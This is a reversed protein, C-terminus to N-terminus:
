RHGGALAPRTYPPRPAPLAPNALAVTLTASSDAKVTAWATYTGQLYLTPSITIPGATDASNTGTCYDGYCGFDLGEGNVNPIFGGSGATRTFTVQTGFLTDNPFTWFAVHGGSGGNASLMECASDVAVPASVAQNTIAPAACSEVVITYAGSDAPTSAEVRISVTQDTVSTFLLEENEGGNGNNTGFSNWWGTSFQADGQANRAYLWVDGKWNDFAATDARHYVRVVYGTHAKANLTWSEAITRDYNYDSWVSCSKADIQGSVSDGPAVSGVTCATGDPPALVDNGSCAALVATALLAAGLRAAPFPLRMM